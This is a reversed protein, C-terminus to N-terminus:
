KSGSLLFWSWRFHSFFNVLQSNLDSSTNELNRPNPQCVSPCLFPFLPFFLLSLDLNLAPKFSVLLFSILVDRRGAECVWKFCTLLRGRFDTFFFFCFGQEAKFSPLNRDILWVINLNNTQKNTQKAWWSQSHHKRNSLCRMSKRLELKGWVQSWEEREEM